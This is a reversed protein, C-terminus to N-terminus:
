YNLIRFIVMLIYNHIIIAFNYIKFRNKYNYTKIRNKSFIQIFNNVFNTKPNNFSIIIFKKKKYILKQNYNLMMIWSNIMKHMLYLKIKIKTAIMCISLRSIRDLWISIIPSSFSIQLFHISEIKKIIILLLLKILLEKKKNLLSTQFTTLWRLIIKKM